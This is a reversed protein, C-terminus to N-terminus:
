FGLLNFYIGIELEIGLMVDYFHIFEFKSRFVEVEFAICAFLIFSVPISKARVIM